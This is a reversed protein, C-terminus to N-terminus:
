RQRRAAEALVAGAAGLRTAVAAPSQRAAHYLGCHAPSNGEDLLARLHAELLDRPAPLGARAAAQEAAQRASLFREAAACLAEAATLLADLAGQEADAYDAAAQQYAREMEGAEAAIAAQQAERSRAEADARERAETTSLAQEARQRLDQAVGLHAAQEFPDESAAAAKEHVEAQATLQGALARAKEDSRTRTLTSM